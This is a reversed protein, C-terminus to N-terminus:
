ASEAGPTVQNAGTTPGQYAGSANHADQTTNLKETYVM